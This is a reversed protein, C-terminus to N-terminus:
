PNAVASVLGLGPSFIFRTEEGRGPGGDIRWLFQLSHPRGQHEFDIREITLKLRRQLRGGNCRVHFTRTEGQRWVGLPFIVEDECERKRREDWARGLGQGSSAIAFLQRNDPDAKEYVQIPMAGERRVWPHPGSLRREGAGEASALPALRLERGGDWALGSWLEVPIFRTAGLPEPRSAWPDPDAALAAPAWLLLVLVRRKAGVGM